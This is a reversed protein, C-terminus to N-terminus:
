KIRSGCETCFNGPGDRETGCQSCFRAPEAPPAPQNAGRSNKGQNPPPAPNARVPANLRRNPANSARAAAYRLQQRTMPRSRSKSLLAYGVLLAALAAFVIGVVAMPNSSSSTESSTTSSNLSPNQISPNPDSKTYGIVFSLPKTLDQNRYSYQHLVMGEETSRSQAPPSVSFDNSTLPEQVYVRLDGIPYLSRFEYAINKDDQGVISSDYYEVRFTSSKAEYSIEDWGPVDSPQRNPPGGAYKGQADKWGASFMQAGSPVLFRVTAPAKTGAIQGELMVLLRPDDYEPYVWLQVNSLGTPEPSAAMAPHTQGGPAILALSFAFLLLLRALRRVTYRDKM